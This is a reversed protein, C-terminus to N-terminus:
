YKEPWDIMSEQDIMGAIEELHGRSRRTAIVVKDRRDDNITQVVWEAPKRGHPLGDREAVNLMTVLNTVDDERFDGDNFAIMTIQGRRVLSVDASYEESYRADPIEVCLV